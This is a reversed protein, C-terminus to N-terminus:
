FYKGIFNSVRTGIKWGAMGAPRAWPEVQHWHANVPLTEARARAESISVPRFDFQDVGVNVAHRSGAWNHHVHGFLHLTGRRAGPFTILPYHCLFARGEETQIDALDAKSDWALDQVWELDHNGVILHRRGPIEAFLAAVRTRHQHALKGISFDGVIWLDDEPGVRAKIRELIDREMELLSAQPRSCAALIREHGLHLDATFWNAM